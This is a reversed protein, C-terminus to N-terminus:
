AFSGQAYKFSDIFLWDIIDPKGVKMSMVIAVIYIASYGAM